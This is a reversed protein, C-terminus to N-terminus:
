EALEGKELLTRAWELTEELKVGGFRAGMLTIRDLTPPTDWHQRKSWELLRSLLLAVTDKGINKLAAPSGELDLFVMARQIDAAYKGAEAQMKGYEKLQDGHQKQSEKSTKRIEELIKRCEEVMGEFVREEEQRRRLALDQRAIDDKTQQSREGLQALEKKAGELDASLGKL